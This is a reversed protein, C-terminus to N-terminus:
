PLNEEEFNHAAAAAYTIGGEKHDSKAVSAYGSIGAIMLAQSLGIAATLYPMQATFGNRIAYYMLLICQEAFLAGFIIVLRTLKKHESLRKKSKM